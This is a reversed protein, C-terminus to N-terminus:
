NRLEPQPPPPPARLPKGVSQKEKAVDRMDLAGRSAICPEIPLPTAPEDCAAARELPPTAPPTLCQREWVAPAGREWKVDDTIWATLDSVRIVVKESISIVEDQVRLYLLM